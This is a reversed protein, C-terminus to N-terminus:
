NCNYSSRRVTFGILSTNPNITTTLVNSNNDLEYTFTDIIPTGEVEISSILYNLKKGFYGRLVSFQPLYTQETFIYADTVKTNNFTTIYPKINNVATIMVNNKYTFNSENKIVDNETYISKALYGDSNYTYTTTTRYAPSNMAMSEIRGNNDIKYIYTYAVTPTTKEYNQVVQIIEKEKYEFTEIVHYIQNDRNKSIVRKKSDYTYTIVEGKKNEDYTTTQGMLCNAEKKDIKNKKCSSSILILISFTLLLAKNM